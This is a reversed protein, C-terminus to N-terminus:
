RLCARFPLSMFAVAYESQFTDEITRKLHTLNASLTVLKANASRTGSLLGRIM